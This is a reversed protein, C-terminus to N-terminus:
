RGVKPLLKSIKMASWILTTVFVLLLLTVFGYAAGMPVDGTALFQNAILVGVMQTDPGGVLPPIVYDAASLLFILCFALLISRGILPLIVKRYVGFPTAGLDRSAEVEDDRVSELGSLIILTAYPAYISGLTLIVATPSFLLWGLPQDSLGSTTLASNIVGNDGLITRWAYIRVLYGGLVALMVIPIAIRVWSRREFRIYRAITFGIAVSIAATGLGFAVSTRVAKWFTDRALVDAYNQTTLSGSVGYLSGSRFSYWLGIGLPVVLLFLLVLGLPSALGIASIRSRLDATLLGECGGLRHGM